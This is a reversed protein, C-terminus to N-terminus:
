QSMINLVEAMVLPNVGLGAGFGLYYSFQLGLLM